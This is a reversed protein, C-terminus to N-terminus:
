RRVVPNKEFEIMDGRYRIPLHNRQCSPNIREKIAIANFFGKWLRAYEMENESIIDAAEWNIEEGSLLIWNNRERHILFEQHTKDYIIWNELPFRDTFHEGICTLIRNKPSIESFLVGNELERFRIIETHFHAENGVNRSLRFVKEVAPSTLHDMVKKSDPIRRAERLTHFVADAKMSDESLLAHYIHWYAQQGLNKKIMREAAAAKRGDETVEIYDCFLQHEMRDQLEIGVDDNRFGKWADYIASLIGMISDKCVFVKKM